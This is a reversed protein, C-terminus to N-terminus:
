SGFILVCGEERKYALTVPSAFPSCSEEILGAKLLEKIQFEIEKQDLISCHYPKKAVFKHELLKVHAEHDKVQGVDFKNKAFVTEYKNILFQISKRRNESLHDLKAEFQEVPIGENRNVLYEQNEVNTNFNKIEDEKNEM